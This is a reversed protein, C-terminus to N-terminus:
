PDWFRDNTINLDVLGSIGKVTGSASYQWIKPCKEGFLEPEKYPKNNEPQKKIGSHRAIWFEYESFYNRLYNNYFKQPAYLIAKKKYKEEIKKLFLLLEERLKKPGLICREEIDIVPNLDGIDTTNKLFNEFQKIAPENPRYYHYVGVALGNKKAQEFNYKFATDVSNIGMTTRIYAFEIKPSKNKVVKTWDIISIQSQYHSVDIGYIKIDSKKFSVCNQYCGTNLFFIFIPLTYKFINM